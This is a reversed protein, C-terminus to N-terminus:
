GQYAYEGQLYKRAETEHAEANVLMKEPWGGRTTPPNVKYVDALVRDCEALELLYWGKTAQVSLIGQGMEERVVKAARVLESDFYEALENGARCNACLLYLPDDNVGQCRVCIKKEPPTYGTTPYM